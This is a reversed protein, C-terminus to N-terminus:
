NSIYILRALESLSWRRKRQGGEDVACAYKSSAAVCSLLAGTDGTALTRRCMMGQRNPTGVMIGGVAAAQLVKYVFAVPCEHDKVVVFM